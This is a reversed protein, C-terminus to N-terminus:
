ANERSISESQKIPFFFTTTNCNNLLLQHLEPYIIHILVQFNRTKEQGTQRCLGVRWLQEKSTMIALMSQQGLSCKLIRPLPLKMGRSSGSRMSGKWTFLLWLTFYVAQGVPRAVAVSSGNNSLPQLSHWLGPIHGVGFCFWNSVTEEHSDSEWQQWAAKGNYVLSPILDYM